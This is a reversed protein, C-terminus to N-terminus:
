RKRSRLAYSPVGYQFILHVLLGTAAALILSPKSSHVHRFYDLPRLFARLEYFALAVLPVGSPGVGNRIRRWYLKVSVVDLYLGLTAAAWLLCELAVATIYLATTV